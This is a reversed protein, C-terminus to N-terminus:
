NDYQLAGEGLMIAFAGLTNYLRLPMDEEHIENKCTCQSEVLDGFRFVQRNKCTLCSTIYEPFANKDM